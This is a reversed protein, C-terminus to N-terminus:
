KQTPPMFIKLHDGVDLARLRRGHCNLLTQRERRMHDGHMSAVRVFEAASVRIADIQLTATGDTKRPIVADAPGRPIAGTMVKFPRVSLSDSITSNWAWAIAPLYRKINKYEKGSMQRLCLAFFDWFREMTSNGQPLYGGTTKITYGHDTALTNMVKDVFEQAHDSNIVDPVGHRFLIHKEVTAEVETAGRTKCAALEM